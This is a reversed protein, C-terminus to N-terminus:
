SISEKRVWFRDAFDDSVAANNQEALQKEINELEDEALVKELHPFLSREEYRVHNEVTDALQTLQAADEQGSTNLAKILQNIQKHDDIAKQVEADKVPAFLITEEQWFHPQMHYQWFYYVYNKIRGTDVELKLGTRIKWCFLLAFHHDRSLKVIHRNRKIPKKEM